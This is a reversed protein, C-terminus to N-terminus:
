CHWIWGFPNQSSSFMTYSHWQIQHISYLPSMDNMVTSITFPM